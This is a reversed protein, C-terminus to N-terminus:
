KDLGTKYGDRDGEIGTNKSQQGETGSSLDGVEERKERDEFEDNLSAAERKVIELGTGNQELQNTLDDLHDSADRLKKIAEQRKEARARALADELAKRIADLRDHGDEVETGVEDTKHELDHARNIIGELDCSEPDASDVEKILDGIDRKLSNVTNRMGDKDDGLASLDDEVKALRSASEDEPDIVKKWDKIKADTDNIGSELENLRKEIADLDKLKKNLDDKVGNLM